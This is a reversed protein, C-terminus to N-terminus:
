RLTHITHKHLQRIYLYISLHPCVSTKHRRIKAYGIGIRALGMGVVWFLAIKTHRFIKVHYLSGFTEEQGFRENACLM